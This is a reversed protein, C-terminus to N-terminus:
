SLINAPLMNKQQLAGYLDDIAETAAQDFAEARNFPNRLGFMRPTKGDFVGLHEVKNATTLTASFACDVRGAGTLHWDLLYVELTPTEDRASEGSPVFTLHGRFGSRQFVSAVLRALAGTDNDIRTLGLSAPATVVLQVENTTANTALPTNPEARAARLPGGACVAVLLTVTFLSSSSCLFNTRM